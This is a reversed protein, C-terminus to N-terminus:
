SRPKPCPHLLPTEEPCPHSPVRVVPLLLRAPLPALIRTLCRQPVPALGAGGSGERCGPAGMSLGSSCLPSPCYGPCRTPVSAVRSSEAQGDRAAQGERQASALAQRQSQRPSVAGAQARSLTHLQAPGFVVQPSLAALWPM